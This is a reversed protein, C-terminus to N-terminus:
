LESYYCTVKFNYSYAQVYGLPSNSQSFCILLFPFYAVVAGRIQDCHKTKENSYVLM